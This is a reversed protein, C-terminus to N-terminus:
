RHLLRRGARGDGLLQGAWRQFMPLVVADDAHIVGVGFVAFLAVLLFVKFMRM